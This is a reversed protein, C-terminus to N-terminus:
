QHISTSNPRLYPVHIVRLFDVKISNQVERSRTESPEIAHVLKYINKSLFNCVYPFRCLLSILFAVAPVLFFIFYDLRM